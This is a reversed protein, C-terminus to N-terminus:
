SYERWRAREMTLKLQQKRSEPSTFAKRFVRAVAGRYAPKSGDTLLAVHQLRAKTVQDVPRGNRYVPKRQADTFQVSVGDRGAEIADVVQRHDARTPDPLWLLTLGCYSTRAELTEGATALMAGHHGSRLCWAASVNLEEPLGFACFGIEEPRTRNLVRPARGYCAIIWVADVPEGVAARRGQGIAPAAPATPPIRLDPVLELGMRARARNVSARIDPLDALKPALWAASAYGSASREINAIM